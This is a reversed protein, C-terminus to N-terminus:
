FIGLKIAIASFIGCVIGMMGLILGYIAYKEFFGLNRRSV